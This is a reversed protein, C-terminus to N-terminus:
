THKIPLGAGKPKGEWKDPKLPVYSGRGMENWERQVQKIPLRFGRGTRLEGGAALSQNASSLLQPTTSDHRLEAAGWIM